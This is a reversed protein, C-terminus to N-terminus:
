PERRFHDWGSAALPLRRGDHLLWRGAAAPTIAGIATLPVGTAVRVAAVLEPVAPPPATLLLEYDEGGVLALGVPDLGLRAALTRTEASLPLRAANVEAGVGSADCLHGLDSSLGDSLDIAATVLGTAALAQGERVRPTPTLHAEVLPAVPPDAPDLGADLAYRGAASAGLTGTVLVVDGPRAGDRRLVRGREVEGLLALDIVIQEGGSLNGGVMVAGFRGLEVALGRYLDEVWAVDLDPPLVLSPLAWRPAGGMAGIDSLNVAATRRGLREAAIRDRRFHRGEVQIDITALLLRPGGTDLVAADDGIGVVVGGDAGTLAALRNILAFEGLDRVRM